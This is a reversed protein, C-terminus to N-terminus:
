ARSPDVLFGPDGVATLVARRLAADDAEVLAVDWRPVPLLAHAREPWEILVVEDDAPLESWGLEWVDAERDLRYLDIHVLDFGRQTSYRFLLNYTPSPILGAVGAGKAIARALTTKGAGVDGSLTIVLPAVATRGISEGWSILAPEDLGPSENADAKGM